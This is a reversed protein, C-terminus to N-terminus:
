KCTKLQNIPPYSFANDLFWRAKYIKLGPQKYVPQKGLEGIEDTWWSGPKGDPIIIITPFGAPGSSVSKIHPISEPVSILKKDNFRYQFTAKETSLWLGQQNYMPFLDHAGGVPLAISDKLVLDPHTCDFNYTFTKLKNQTASWLVKQKRDWVVNHGFELYITKSYVKDPFQLTDTHFVTMFNGTSSAAVINGDPLIESSHTNGGAYAYFLVKKDAIRVLAVGGGSANTLIATGNYVVKADSPNKFWAVHEPKIVPSQEPLWEWVIKKNDLDLIAVRHVSQEALVICKKCNDFTINQANAVEATSICCLFALFAAFQIRIFNM